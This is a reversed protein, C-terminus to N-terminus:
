SSRCVTTADDDDWNDDCVPGFYGERNTVFVNGTSQGDGGRLEVCPIMKRTAINIELVKEAECSDESSSASLTATMNGCFNLWNEM